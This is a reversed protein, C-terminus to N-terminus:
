AAPERRGKGIRILWNHAIALTRIRNIVTNAGSSPSEMSCSISLERDACSRLSGVGLIDPCAKLSTGDELDEGGGGDELGLRSWFNAPM